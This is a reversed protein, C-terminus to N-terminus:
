ETQEKRWAALNALARHIQLEEIVIAERAEHVTYRSFWLGRRKAIRLAEEMEAIIPSEPRETAPAKAAEYAAIAKQMAFNNPEALSAYATMAAAFGKEDIPM